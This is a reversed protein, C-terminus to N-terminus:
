GPHEVRERRNLLRVAERQQQPVIHAYVRATMAPDRHGLQEAVVRMHVGRAVMLTAAGHRLGHPTTRPLGAAELMRPLAHTVSQSRMRDDTAKRSRREMTFVPEAPGIRVAAARHRRLADAADDSIPVARAITKTRRVVVFREDIDVDQWDLGVAEGLRLGSGLLLVVLSELWTGTVTEIIRQAHQETLAQVPRPEVRPITALAAPNDVLLRRRVARNLAIRLTTVIRVVTAPSKGARLRDAVLREVDRPRLRHIAIGGLLPSIHLRIHNEYSARTSARVSPGHSALWERLYEDLTDLVDGDGDQGYRRLLQKREEEAAERSIARAKHAVRKGPGTSVYVRAYWSGTAKDYGVSGEGRRGRRKSM